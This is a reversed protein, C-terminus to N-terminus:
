DWSHFVNKIIQICEENIGEFGKKWKKTELLFKM